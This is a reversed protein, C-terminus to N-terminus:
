SFVAPLYKHRYVNKLYTIMQDYSKIFGENILDAVKRELEYLERQKKEEGYQNRINREHENFVIWNLAEGVKQMAQPMFDKRVIKSVASGLKNYADGAENRYKIMEDYVFKIVQVEFRPNLWMAFKVFLVPHMWTGGSKGRLKLYALNKTSLKEEELLADIFEKTNKNYFFEKLDKQKLHPSNGRNLNAYENWQRLLETACFFGDKTRQTVNFEGMKRKMLQNTKM